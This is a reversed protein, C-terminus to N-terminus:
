GAILLVLLVDEMAAAGYRAADAVWGPQWWLRHVIM